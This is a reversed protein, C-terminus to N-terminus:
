NLSFKPPFNWPQTTEKGLKVEVMQGLCHLLIRARADVNAMGLLQEKIPFPIPM